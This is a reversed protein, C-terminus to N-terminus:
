KHDFLEHNGRMMAIDERTLVKDIDLLMVVRDSVKGMGLIFRTDLGIGFEPTPEIQSVPIDLVELVKDVIIGMVVEHDGSLIKVVIICTRETYDQLDMGLCGRLDIVPTIKGRLNIVGRIYDPMKPVHKISILGIIEQVALIRLGYEEKGLEFVLYKNSESTKGVLILENMKEM